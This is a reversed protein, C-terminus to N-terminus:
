DNAAEDASDLLRCTTTTVDSNNPNNYLSAVCSYQKTLSCEGGNELDINYSYFYGESSVVMIQPMTRIILIEWTFAYLM